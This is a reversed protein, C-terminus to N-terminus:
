KLVEIDKYGGKVNYHGLSRTTAHGGLGRQGVHQIGAVDLNLQSLRLQEDENDITHDM